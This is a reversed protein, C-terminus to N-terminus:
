RVREVLLNDILRIQGLRAAVILLGPGGPEAPDFTDPNVVAAYDVGDTGAKLIETMSREVDPIKRGERIAASGTELARWLVTARARDAGSLFRNRSSLALGDSERVTDCPVIETPISLDTVLRRVMALQQADKRGFFAFRPGVIGLLRAVVTAVGDFHGPRIAGEYKETIREVHVTTARGEPYMEDVSPIFVLDVGTSGAASLDSEESRPYRAFDEGPGFQLPNVFISMVVTSSRERATRVLSLHGDHLAGMTPVLGVPRTASDLADRAEVVSRAIRM